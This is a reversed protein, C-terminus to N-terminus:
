NSSAATYDKDRTGRGATTSSSSNSVKVSCAGTGGTRIISPRETLWTGDEKVRYEALVFEITM